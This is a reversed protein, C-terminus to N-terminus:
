VTPLSDPITFDPHYRLYIIHRDKSSNELVPKKMNLFIVHAAMNRSHIRRLPLPM